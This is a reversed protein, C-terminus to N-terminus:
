TIIAEIWDERSTNQSEDRGDTSMIITDLSGSAPVQAAQLEDSDARIVVPEDDDADDSNSESSDEVASDEKHLDKEDLDNGNSDEDRSKEQSSDEYDSDADQLEGLVNDDMACDADAHQDPNARLTGSELDSDSARDEHDFNAQPRTRIDDTGPESASDSESDNSVGALTDLMNAPQQFSDPVMIISAAKAGAEDIHRERGDDIMKPEMLEAFAIDIIGDDEEEEDEEDERPMEFKGYLRNGNEDYEAERVARDRKAVELTLSNGNVCVSKVRARRYASVSPQWNTAQSVELVKFAIIAGPVLKDSTLTELLSTNDPLAPFDDEVRTSERITQQLQDAVEENEDSEPMVENTINGCDLDARGNDYNFDIIGNRHQQHSRKRKKGRPPYQQQPDWRQVFPFPPTSLDFNSDICEVASLKIKSEWADLSLLPLAGSIGDIQMTVKNQFGVYSTEAASTPTLVPKRKASEAIKERLADEEAKTKPNRLGLAGFLLRRSAATDLRSHRPVEVQDVMKAQANDPEEAHPMNRSTISQVVNSDAVRQGIRDDVVFQPRDNKPKRKGHKPEPAAPEEDSKAGAALDDLLQQRRRLFEDEPKRSKAGGPVPLVDEFQVLDAHTATSPLYGHKQLFKLRKTNKRRRNRAKTSGKGQDPANQLQKQSTPLALSLSQADHGQAIPKDRQRTRTSGATVAAGSDDFTDSTLSDVEDSIESSLEPSDSEASSSSSTSVSASDAGASGKTKINIQKHSSQRDNDESSSESDESGSTNNGTSSHERSKAFEQSVVVAPGVVDNENTVDESTDSSGSRRDDHDDDDDDDNDDDDDDDADDDDDDDDADDDDDDDVADDDDPEFDHAEDEADDEFISFVGPDIPIESFQVSKRRKGSRLTGNPPLSSLEFSEENQNTQKDLNTDNLATTILLQETRGSDSYDGASQLDDNHHHKQRKRPPLTIEPRKPRTIPTRGFAVGDLLRVGDRTIQTRGTVSRARHEVKKLPRISNRNTVVRWSTLPVRAFRLEDDICLVSAVKAYHLCEYGGVEVAYDEYGWLDSEFPVSENVQELLESILITSDPIPWLLKTPPLSRREVTLRIRM